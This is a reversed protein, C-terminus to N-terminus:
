SLHPIFRLLRGVKLADYGEYKVYLYEKREEGIVAKYFSRKAEITADRNRTDKEQEIYATKGIADVLYV